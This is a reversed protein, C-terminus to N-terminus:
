IVVNVVFFISFVLIILETVVIIIKRVLVVVVVFDVVRILQLIFARPNLSDSANWLDHTAQTEQAETVWGDLVYSTVLLLQRIQEENQNYIINM